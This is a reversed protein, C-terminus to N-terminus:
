RISERRYMFFAFIGLVVTPFWAGIYPTIRDARALNEGYLLMMYYSTFVALGLTLGGLKGGKGAMLSLSPGLFVILICMLPLSFRRHLEMYANLSRKKEVTHIKEALEIPTLEANKKQLTEAELSLVLNYKKFFLETIKNGKTINFSGDTLFFGINLGDKASITGKKAVLVKPENKDRSDFLFIGKMTMDDDKDKVFLIMDKFLTNFQGEEIAFPARERIINMVEERLMISSMPGIYFSIAFNILFCLGGLLFAPNSIQWFNMGSTRLIVLENDIHMRAYVFLTSLLLAMPITLLSLQPQLCLIIKVMDFVSTGIGSLVKSLRLLKEMMLIFNLSALSLLFTFALEKLVARHIIKM